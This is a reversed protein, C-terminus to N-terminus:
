EKTWGRSKADALLPSQETGVSAPPQQETFLHGPLQQRNQQGNGVMAEMDKRVAAFAEDSLEIYPKAADDSFERGTAQFLQKVEGERVSRKQEALESEATEARVTLETVSAEATEARATLKDREATLENVRETLEENTPM